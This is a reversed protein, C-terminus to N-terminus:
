EESQAETIQKLLRRWKNQERKLTTCGIRQECYAQAWQLGNADRHEIAREIRVEADLARSQERWGKKFNPHADGWASADRWADKLREDHAWHAFFSRLSRQELVHKLFGTEIAGQIPADGDLFLDTVATAVREAITHTDEQAGLHDFWVELDAAAEFRTLAVNRDPNDRICRLLYRQIFLCTEDSELTPQIRDWADQILEYLLTDVAISDADIWQRVLQRPIPDGSELAIRILHTVDAM